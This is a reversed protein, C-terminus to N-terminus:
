VYRPNSIARLLNDEMFCIHGCMKESSIGTIRNRPLSSRGYTVVLDEYKPHYSVSSEVTNGDLVRGVDRALKVSIFCM